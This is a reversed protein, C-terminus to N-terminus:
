LSNTLNDSGTSVTASQENENHPTNQLRARRNADRDKRRYIYPRRRSPLSIRSPFTNPSLSLLTVTKLTESHRDKRREMDSVVHLEERNLESPSEEPPIM